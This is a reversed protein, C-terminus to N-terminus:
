GSKDGGEDDDYFTIDDIDTGACLCVLGVAISGGVIIGIVLGIWFM